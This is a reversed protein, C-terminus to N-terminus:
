NYNVSIKEYRYLCMDQMDHNYNIYEFIKKSSTQIKNERIFTKREETNKKLYSLLNNEYFEYDYGNSGGYIFGILSEKHLDWSINYSYGCGLYYQLLNITGYEVKNYCACSTTDNNENNENNEDNKNNSLKNLDFCMYKDIANGSYLLLILIVISPLDSLNCNWKQLIKSILLDLKVINENSIIFTEIYKIPNNFQSDILKKSFFPKLIELDDKIQKIQRNNNNNYNKCDIFYKYWNSKSYINHITIPNILFNYLDYINKIFSIEYKKVEKYNDLKRKRSKNQRNNQRNNKKNFKINLKNQKIENIKDKCMCLIINYTTLINKNNTIIIEIINHPLSFIDDINNINNM